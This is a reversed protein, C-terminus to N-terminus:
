NVIELYNQFENPVGRLRLALADEEREFDVRFRRYTPSDPLFIGPKVQVTPMQEVRYHVENNCSTDVWDKFFLELLKHKDENVNSKVIFYISNLM